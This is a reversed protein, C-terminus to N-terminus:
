EPEGASGLKIPNGPVESFEGGPGAMSRYESGATERYARGPDRPGPEGADALVPLCGPMDHVDARLQTRSCPIGPTVTEGATHRVANTALESTLLVAADKADPADRACIVGRGPGYAEAAAAPGTTLRIPCAHLEAARTLAMTHM